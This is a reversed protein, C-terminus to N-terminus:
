GDARHHLQVLHAHELLLLDADFRWETGRLGKREEGFLRDGALPEALFDPLAGLAERRLVAVRFKGHGHLALLKWRVVAAADLADAQPVGRAIAAGAVQAAVGHRGFHEADRHLGIREFGIA